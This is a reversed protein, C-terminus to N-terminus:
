NHLHLRPPVNRLVTVKIAEVGTTVTYFIRMGEMIGKVARPLSQPDLGLTSLERLTLTFPTLPGNRGENVTTYDIDLILLHPSVPSQSHERSYQLRLDEIYMSSRSLDLFNFVTELM